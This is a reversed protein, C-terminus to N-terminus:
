NIIGVQIDLGDSDGHFINKSRGVSQLLKLQSKPRWGLCHFSLLDTCIECRGLKSQKAPQLLRLLPM